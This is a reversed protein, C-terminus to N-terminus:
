LRPKTAKLLLNTPLQDSSALYRHELRDLLDGVSNMLVYCLPFAARLPVAPGHLRRELQHLLYGSLTARSVATGGSASILVDNWDAFLERLQDESYLRETGPYVVPTTLVVIGAPRLVRGIEALAEEPRPVFYFAQTCMVLDFSESEFPLFEDSVVDAVGFADDIDLGVTRAGAPLLDEYPRAGCYIDLVDRADVGALASSLDDVLRRLHLYLYDRRRPHRRSRRVYALSAPSFPARPPQPM